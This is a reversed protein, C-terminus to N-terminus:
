PRPRGMSDSKAIPWNCIKKGWSDDVNVAEVFAIGAEVCAAFQRESLLTSFVEGMNGMCAKGNADVHPANMGLTRAHAAKNRWSINSGSITIEFPGIWHTLGTRPDVCFLDTTHVVVAQESVSVDMVKSISLMSDFEAGLDEYPAQEIRLMERQVRVALKLTKVFNKLSASADNKGGRAKSKKMEFAACQAYALALHDDRSTTSAQVIAERACALFHAWLMCENATGYKMLEPFVYLANGALEGVANGRDDYIPVGSQSITNINDAKTPLTLGWCTEPQPLKIAGRAAGNFYITFEGPSVASVTDGYANAITCPGSLVGALMKLALDGLRYPRGSQIGVTAFGNVKVKLETKNLSGPEYRALQQEVFRDLEKFQALEGAARSLTRTLLGLHFDWGWPKLRRWLKAGKSLRPLDFGLVDYLVFLNNGQLQVPCFEMATDFCSLATPDPAFARKPEGFHGPYGVGWISDPRTVVALNASGLLRGQSDFTSEVHSGRFLLIHFKGDGEPAPTHAGMGHVVIDCRCVPLITDAVVQVIRRRSVPFQGQFTVRSTNLSAQDAHRYIFIAEWKKRGAACLGLPEGGLIRVAKKWYFRSVVVVPREKIVEEKFPLNHKKLLRLQDPSLGELYCTQEQLSAIRNLLAVLVAAVIALSFIVVPSM